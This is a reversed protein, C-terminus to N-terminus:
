LRGTYFLSGVQGENSQDHGPLIQCPRHSHHLRNHYLDIRARLSPGDFFGEQLREGYEIARYRVGPPINYPLTIM